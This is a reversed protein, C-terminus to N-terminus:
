VVRRRSSWLHLDPQTTPITDYPDSVNPLHASQPRRKVLQPNDIDIIESTVFEFTLQDFSGPVDRRELHVMEPHKTRELPATDVFGVAVQRCRRPELVPAPKRTPFRGAQDTGGPGEGMHRERKRRETVAVYPDGRHLNESVGTRRVGLRENFM